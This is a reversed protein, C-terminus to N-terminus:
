FPCPRPSTLLSTNPFSYANHWTFSAPERAFWPLLAQNALHYTYGNLTIEYGDFNQVPDATELNDQCLMDPPPRQWPPTPNIDFPDNIWEGIEHSIGYVDAHGADIAEPAIWSAWGWTQIFYNTGDFRSVYRRHSGLEYGSAGTPDHNYYIAATGGTVILPFQTENVHAAQIIDPLQALWFDADVLALLNTGFDFLYGQGAPVDLVRTRDVNLTLNTHWTPRAIGYFEARQVADQFQLHGNPLDTAVFNPSNAILGVYPDVRLVPHNGNADTYGLFRLSLPLLRVTIQPSTGGFPPAGPTPDLGSMVYPYRIGDTTFSSSWLPVSLVKLEQAAAEVGPPLPGGRGFRPQNFATPVQAASFAANLVLAISLAPITTSYRIKM